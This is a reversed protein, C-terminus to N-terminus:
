VRALEGISHLKAARERLEQKWRYDEANTALNKSLKAITFGQRRAGELGCCLGDFLDPSRGMRIKCKEKPEVQIKNGGVKTWERMCGEAMVEETMGRFQGAEITLRTAYWLESVFNFYYDRCSANIENSVPRETAKGGFEVGQVHPSWIRAFAGMLSGRGTSDFYFNEPAIKRDECIPKVFNVIQDEPMDDLGGVIPVLMTDILAVMNFEKGEDDIGVGFDLEGFICRDGGVGRYAADLFGIKWHRDDKWVPDEMAHFKLCMQRTIIRRMGLGRPMRGMDMMNFQLSDRGYFAIDADIQEQTILPIGLKGDLNPSETGPFQICIGDPMRIPWTKTVPTQDVGGDWGGLTASPECLVGLADTTDKPNGSGICKFDPNKNMNAISDVFVRPLFQLEDALLRLRKNKIGCNHVVCNHVSYSPHGEVELNHVTYTTKRRNPRANSGVRVIEVRDVWTRDAMPKEGSREWVSNAEQSIPWGSRCGVKHGAVCLGPLISAGEKFGKFETWNSRLLQSFSRPVNSSHDKRRSVEQSWNGQRRIAFDSEEKSQGYHVCSTKGHTETQARTRSCEGHNGHQYAPWPRKSFQGIAEKGNWATSGDMESLLLSQLFDGTSGKSHVAQRLIQMTEHPSVLSDGQKVDVANKWGVSTLFRHLPTCEIKRGDGLHVRVLYPAVRTMTKTVRAPGIASVVMEGPKILEIPSSGTPTDVLTGTPFCYEEIGQFAQGRKCAVGLLGNRFDRGEQEASRPDTVIRQRGEILHGPIWSYRGKALKHLKKVEGLVRMELSERTTSSVLITTCDPYMYYDALVCAAPVFTKGSNHHISGQAFYHHYNPVTLDYYFDRGVYKIHQVKNLQVTYNTCTLDRFANPYISSSCLGQKEFSDSVLRERPFQLPQQFLPYELEDIGELSRLFECIGSMMSPALINETARLFACQDHRNRAQRNGPVDKQAHTKQILSKHELVCTSLPSAGPFINSAERLQADCFCPSSPYDFQFDPTTRTWRQGNSCLTSPSTDQTSLPHCPAYGVLYEGIQLDSVHCFGRETLVRHQATATFRSDGAQLEYLDAIGKVFPIGAKAPGHLTLVTPFVGNECLERITPELGTIPDLIKTDGSVCSACGIQGMIRYQLYCKVQLESWHNWHIELWLLRLYEKFHFFLGNGSTSGDKNVHVGGKKVMQMEISIDPIAANWRLGYKERKQPLSRPTAPM